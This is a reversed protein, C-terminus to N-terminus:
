HSYYVYYAIVPTITASNESVALISLRILNHKCLKLLAGNAIASLRKLASKKPLHVFVGYFVIVVIMLNDPNSNGSGVAFVTGETIRIM